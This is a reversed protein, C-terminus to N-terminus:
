ARCNTVANPMAMAAGVTPPSWEAILLKDEVEAEGQQEEAAVEEEEDEAEEVPPLAPVLSPSPREERQPLLTDPPNKLAPRAPDLSGALECWALCFCARLATCVVATKASTTACSVTTHRWCKKKRAQM